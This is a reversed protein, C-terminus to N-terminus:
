TISSSGLPDDRTQIRFVDVASELREATKTLAVIADKTGDMHQKSDTSLTQISSVNRVIEETTASQEETATAIQAMMDRVTNVAEHIKQLAARSQEGKEVGLGVYETVQATVTEVTRSEQAVDHVTNEIDAISETTRQSLQRVEDAVVAFGRGNEGARAAEIAANLALLNTQEAIAKIVNTVKEIKTLAASLRGVAASSAQVVRDINSLAEATQSVISGGEQVVAKASDANGAASESNHAVEKITSSMEEMAVNIQLIQDGQKATNDATHEALNQIDRAGTAVEEAARKTGAVTQALRGLMQNLSEGTKALEDRGRLMVSVTLDGSAAQELATRIAMADRGISYGLHASVSVLLLLAVAAASWMLTATRREQGHLRLYEAHVAQNEMPVLKALNNSVHLEVPVWDEQLITNVSDKRDQAYAQNLKQLIDGLVSMHADIDAIRTREKQSRASLDAAKKFAQWDAPLSQQADIVQNRSGVAPMVDSLYAAMRFRVEKLTAVMSGLREAPQVHHKYVTELGTEAQRVGWYGGTAITLLLIAAMAAMGYIRARISLQRLWNLM